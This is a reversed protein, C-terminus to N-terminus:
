ESFEIVTEPRPRYLRFKLLLKSADSTAIILDWEPFIMYSQPASPDFKAMPLAEMETQLVEAGKM